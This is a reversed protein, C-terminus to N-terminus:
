ELLEQLMLILPTTEFNSKRNLHYITTQIIKDFPVDLLKFDTEADLYAVIAREITKSRTGKTLKKLRIAVNTDINASIVSKTRM